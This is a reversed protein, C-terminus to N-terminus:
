IELCCRVKYVKVVAMTVQALFPSPWHLFQYLTNKRETLVSEIGWCVKSVTSNFILCLISTSVLSRVFRVM